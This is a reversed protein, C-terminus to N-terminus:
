IIAPCWDLPTITVSTSLIQQSQMPCYGIMPMLFVLFSGQSAGIGTNRAASLGQNKQFVYTVGTFSQAVEKTNDTSGDDVVIIEVNKYTQELVSGIAKELYCAHNFCPIIVSVKRNEVAQNNATNTQM